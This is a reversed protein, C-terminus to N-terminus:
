YMGGYRNNDGGHRVLNSYRAATQRPRDCLVIALLGCVVSGLLALAAVPETAFIFLWAEAVAWGVFSLV